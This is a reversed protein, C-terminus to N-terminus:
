RRDERERVREGEGEGEREERERERERERGREREITLITKDLHHSFLLSFGPCGQLPLHLGANLILLPLRLRAFVAFQHGELFTLM